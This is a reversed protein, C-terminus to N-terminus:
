REVENRNRQFTKRFQEFTDRLGVKDLFKLVIDKFTELERLKISDRNEALRNKISKYQSLENQVQTHQQQLTQLDQKLGKNESLLKKEKKVSAIQKQALLKVEDFESKDMTVKDKNMMTPKAEIADINKIKTKKDAIVSLQKQQAQIEQSNKTLLETSEQLRKEEQMVKFAIDSLNKDTSGKEGREIDEYGCDRLYTFFRDQLLSYSKELHSKGDEGTVKKSAWKKSHSVQTIVEKVTGVLSKDKCRKTWLVEKEVVPIYSIHLHYHYVDKGLKESLASNREDAHMVASLIYQEGGIEKVAFEYAKSFLDKAYEYGGSNEFYASNVDCIFEEIITANQKLGRTSIVGDECLKDFTFLYGGEPHKFHINLKSRSLDIDTNQYVENKRENHREMNGVHTRTNQANRIVAYNKGDNRAM